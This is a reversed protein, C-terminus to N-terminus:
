SLLGAAPLALTRALASDARRVMDPAGSAIRFKRRTVRMLYALGSCRCGRRVGVYLSAGVVPGRCSPDCEGVDLAGAQCGRHMRLARVRMEPSYKRNM